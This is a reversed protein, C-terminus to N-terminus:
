VQCVARAIAARPCLTWTIAHVGPPCARVARQVAYGDMQHGRCGGRGSPLINKGIAVKGAGKHRPEEIICGPASRRAANLFSSLAILKVNHFKWVRRHPAIIRERVQLRTTRNCM